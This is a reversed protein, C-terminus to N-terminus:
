AVSCKVDSSPLPVVAAIRNWACFYYPFRLIFVNKRFFRITSIASHVTSHKPMSAPPTSNPAIRSEMRSRLKEVTASAYVDVSAGIVTSALAAAVTGGIVVVDIQEFAACTGGLFLSIIGMVLKRGVSAKM